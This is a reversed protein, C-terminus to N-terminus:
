VVPLCNRFIIRSVSIEEYCIFNVLICIFTLLQFIINGSVPSFEPMRKYNLVATLIVGDARITQLM